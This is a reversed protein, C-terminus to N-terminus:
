CSVLVLSCFCVGECMEVCEALLLLASASSSCLVHCLLLVVCLAAAHVFTSVMAVGGVLPRCAPLCFSCSTLRLSALPALPLAFPSTLLLHLCCIHAAFALALLLLVVCALSSHFLVFCQGTDTRALAPMPSFGGSSPRAPKPSAAASTRLSRRIHMTLVSGVPGRLMNAVDAQVLSSGASNSSASRGSNSTSTTSAGKLEIDGVRTVMDGVQRM